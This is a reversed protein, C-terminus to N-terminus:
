SMRGLDNRWRLGKDAVVEENEVAAKTLLCGWEGEAFYSQSLASGPYLCDKETEARVDREKDDRDDSLPM